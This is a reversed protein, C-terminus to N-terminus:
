VHVCAFLIRPCVRTIHDLASFEEKKSNYKKLRKSERERKRKELRKERQGMKKQDRRTNYVMIKGGVEGGM